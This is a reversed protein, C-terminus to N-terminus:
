HSCEFKYCAVQDIVQSISLDQLLCGGQDLVFFHLFLPLEELEYVNLQTLKLRNHGLFYKFFALIYKKFSIHLKRTNVSCYQYFLNIKKGRFVHFFSSM